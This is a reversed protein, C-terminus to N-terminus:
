TCKKITDKLGVASSQQLHLRPCHQLHLRPCHQLYPRPGGAALQRVPLHNSLSVACVLWEGPSCSAHVTIYRKMDVTSTMCSQDFRCTCGCNMCQIDAPIAFIGGGIECEPARSHSTRDPSPNHHFLLNHMNYHLVRPWQM